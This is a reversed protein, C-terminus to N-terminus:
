GHGYSKCAPTTRTLCTTCLTALAPMRAGPQAFFNEAYSRAAAPNGGQDMLLKMVEENACGHRPGRLICEGAIVSCAWRTRM